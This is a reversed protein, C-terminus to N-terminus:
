PDLSFLTQGFPPGGWLTGSPDAKLFLTPRPGSEVPIPRLKVDREGPRIVCYDQGRVGLLVGTRSAAYLGGGRLDIDAIHTLGLEGQRYRYVASGQRLYLTEPATLSLDVSWAGKEAPPTPLPFQTIDMLNRRGYATDGV